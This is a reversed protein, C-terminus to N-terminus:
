QAREDNDVRTLRVVERGTLIIVAVGNEIIARREHTCVFISNAGRPCVKRRANSSKSFRRHVVAGARRICCEIQSHALGDTESWLGFTTRGAPREATVMSM